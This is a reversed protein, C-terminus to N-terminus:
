SAGGTTPAKDATAPVPEANPDQALVDIGFDDMIKKADVKMGHVKLAGDLKTIADGLKGLGDAKETIDEPEETVWKPWPASATVGFNMKVWPSVHQQQLCTSLREGDFRILNQAIQKQPNGDSFGPTGETTVTQGAIAITIEENSFKIQQDFVDGSKGASAAEVLKLDWGQPLVLKANKGLSALQGMYTRRQRETGTHSTTGLMVPSGLVQSFNARDEMSFHKLLWPFALARWLGEAWPRRAGYPQFLIWDGDGPIVSEMGNQTQVKWHSGGNGYHYYTLWRPSWTEIRYRHPKGILRPLEIRQALGVGSTIGWFLLKALESEDCMHWWEGTKEDADGELMERAEDNGDRFSIPMGLLAHARTALVGSIRADRFMTECLDALELLPGSDAMAAAKEVREPTWGSVTPRYWLERSSSHMEIRSTQDDDEDKSRQDFPQSASLKATSKFPNLSQWFSQAM